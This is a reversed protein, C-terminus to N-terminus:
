GRGRIPECAVGDRDGDMEVRYGPQGAYLPAKGAARVENCGSYFVGREVSRPATSIAERSAVSNRGALWASDAEAEAESPPLELLPITAKKAPEVPPDSWSFASPFSSWAYGAVCGVAVAGFLLERVGMDPNECVLTASGYLSRAFKRIALGIIVV